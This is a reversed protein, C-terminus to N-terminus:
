SFMSTLKRNEHMFINFGYQSHAGPVLHLLQSCASHAMLRPSLKGKRRSANKRYEEALKSFFIMDIASGDIWDVEERYGAVWELNTTPSELLFKALSTNGLLCTGLYLGKVQKTHNCNTIMNKLETRSITHGTAGGINSEDGHTALYVVETQDDQCRMQLAAELSKKESFMDYYFAAPNGYHIGALAEFLPRVSHNGEDWWRSEIVSFVCKAM